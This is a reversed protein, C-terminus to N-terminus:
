EVPVPSPGKRSYVRVNEHEAASARLGGVPVVKLTGDPYIHRVM